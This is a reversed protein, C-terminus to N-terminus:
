NDLLSGDIESLVTKIDILSDDAMKKIKELTGPELTGLNEEIYADVLEDVLKPTTELFEGIFASKTVGTINAMRTLAENVDASVSISIKAKKKKKLQNISKIM